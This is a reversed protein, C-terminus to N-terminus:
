RRRLPRPKLDECYLFGVLVHLYDLNCMDSLSVLDTAGNAIHKAGRFHLTSSYSKMGVTELKINSPSSSVLASM